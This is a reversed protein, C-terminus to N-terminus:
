HGPNVSNLLRHGDLRWKGSKDLSWVLNVEVARKKKPTAGATSSIEEDRTRGSKPAFFASSAGIRQIRNEEAVITSVLLEQTTAEKRLQELDQHVENYAKVLDDESGDTALSKIGGLNASAFNDATRTTLDALNEGGRSSWFYAAVGIVLVGLVGMMVKSRATASFDLSPMDELVVRHSAAPTTAGSKHRSINDVPPEGAKARGTPDLHFVFNCKKCVMRIHAKEKPVAGFGGCNPCELQVM